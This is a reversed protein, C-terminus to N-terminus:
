TMMYLNSASVISYSLPHMLMITTGNLRCCTGRRRNFQRWRKFLSNTFWKFVKAVILLLADLLM